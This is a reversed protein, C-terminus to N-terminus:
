ARLSAAYGATVNYTALQVVEDAAQASADAPASAAPAAQGSCIRAAALAALGLAAPMLRSPTRRASGPVPNVPKRPQM